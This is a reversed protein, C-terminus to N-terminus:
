RPCSAGQPKSTLVTTIMRGWENRATLTVPFKPMRDLTLTHASSLTEGDADVWSFKMRKAREFPDIPQAGSTERCFFRHFEGSDYTQSTCQSDYGLDRTAATCLDRNGWTGLLEFSANFRVLHEYDIGSFCQASANVKPRCDTFWAFLVVKGTVKNDAVAFPMELTFQNGPASESTKLRSLGFQTTGSFAAPAQWLQPRGDVTAALTLRTKEAPEGSLSGDSAKTGDLIGVNRVTLGTITRGKLSFSSMASLEIRWIKIPCQRGPCNGGELTVLGKLSVKASANESPISLELYSRGFDIAGDFSATPITTSALRISNYWSSCVEGTKGPGLSRCTGPAPRYFLPDSRSITDVALFCTQGCSDSEATATLGDKFCTKPNIEVRQNRIYNNSSSPHYVDCVCPGCEYIHGDPTIPEWECAMLLASLGLLAFARSGMSLGNRKNTM